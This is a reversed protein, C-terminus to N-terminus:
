NSEKEVCIENQGFQLRNNFHIKCSGGYLTEQVIRSAASDHLNFVKRITELPAIMMLAGDAYKVKYLDNM